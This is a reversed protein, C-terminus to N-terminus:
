PITRADPLLILGIAEHLRGVSIGEGQPMSSGGVDRTPAKSQLSEPVTSAQADADIAMLHMGVVVGDSNVLPAGDAANLMLQRNKFEYRLTGTDDVDLVSAEHASQSSPAGGFVATALWISDGSKPSVASLELTRYRAGSGDTPLLLLGADSWCQNDKSDLPPAIPLKLSFTRDTAGFAESIVVDHVWKRIQGPEIQQTLGGAPGILHLATVLFIKGEPGAKVAFATGRIDDTAQNGFETSFFPRWIAYDPIKPVASMGESASPAPMSVDTNAPQCGYMACAAFCMLCISSLRNRDITM